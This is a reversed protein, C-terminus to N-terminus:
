SARGRARRGDKQKTRVKGREGARGKEKEEGQAREVEGQRGQGEGDTWSSRGSNGITARAAAPPNHTQRDRAAAGPFYMM